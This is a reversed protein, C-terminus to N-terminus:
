GAPTTLGRASWCGIDGNPRFLALRASRLRSKLNWNVVARLGACRALLRSDHEFVLTGAFTPLSGFVPGPRNSRSRDFGIGERDTGGSDTGCSESSGRDAGAGDASDCDPPKRDAAGDDPLHSDAFELHVLEADPAEV